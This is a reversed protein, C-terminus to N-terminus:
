RAVRRSAADGPAADKKNEKSSRSSAIPTTPLGSTIRAKWCKTTRDLFPSIPRASCTTELTAVSTLSPKAVDDTQSRMANAQLFDYIGSQRNEKWLFAPVNVCNM